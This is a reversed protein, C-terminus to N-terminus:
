DNKTFFSTNVNAKMTLASMRQSASLVVNAAYSVPSSFSIQVKSSTTIRQVDNAYPHDRGLQLLQLM